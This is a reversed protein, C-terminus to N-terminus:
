RGLKAAISAPLPRAVALAIVLDITVQLKKNSPKQLAVFVVDLLSKPLRRLRFM